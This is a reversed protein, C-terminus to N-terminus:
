EAIPKIKSMNLYMSIDEQTFRIVGGIKHFPIRRSDILRYITAKSVRLADALEVPTILNNLFLGNEMLNKLPPITMASGHPGRLLLM